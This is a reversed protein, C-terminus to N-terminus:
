GRWGGSGSGWGKGVLRASRETAGDRSWISAKCNDRAPRCADSPKRASLEEGCRCSCSVSLHTSRIRSSLLRSVAESFHRRSDTSGPPQEPKWYRNLRSSCFSISSSSMYTQSMTECARRMPAPPWENLQGIQVCLTQSPHPWILRQRPTGPAARRSWLPSRPFSSSCMMQPRSYDETPTRM